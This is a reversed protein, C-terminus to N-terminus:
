ALANPIRGWDCQVPLAIRDPASRRWKWADRCAAKVTAVSDFVRNSWRNGRLFQTITEMPNLEPSWSPLPLLVINDPVALGKSRHWGAGDFVVVACAGDDVAASIATLHANLAAVDTRDSVLSVAKSLAGCAAGFLYCHGNRQDRVPRSHEIRGWRAHLMLM